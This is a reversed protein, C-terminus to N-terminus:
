RGLFRLIEHLPADASPDAQYEMPVLVDRAQRRNLRRLPV